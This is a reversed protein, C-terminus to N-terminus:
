KNTIPTTGETPNKGTAANKRLRESEKGPDVLSQSKSKKRWFVLRDVLSDEESIRGSEREVTARIEPDVDLAQARKLLASEGLTLSNKKKRKAKSPQKIPKSLNQLLKNKAEDRPSIENPGFTGPRPPRLSYDPPMSLPARTVVTFADPGANSRGLVNCGIVILCTGAILTFKSIRM